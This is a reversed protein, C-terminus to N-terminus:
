QGDVGQWVGTSPEFTIEQEEWDGRYTLHIIGAESWARGVPRSTPVESAFQWGNDGRRVVVTWRSGAAADIELVAWQGGAGDVGKVDVGNKLANEVAQQIDSRATQQRTWVSEISEQGNGRDASGGADGSAEGGAGVDSYDVKFGVEDRLAFLQEDTLTEPASGDRDLRGIEEMRIADRLQWVVYYRGGSMFPKELYFTHGGADVRRTDPISLAAGLALVFSLVILLIQVVVGACGAAIRVSWDKRSFYRAWLRSLIYVSAINAVALVVVTAVMGATIMEPRFMVGGSQGNLMHVVLVALGILGAAGLGIVVLTIPGRGRAGCTTEFLKDEAGAAGEPASTESDLRIM